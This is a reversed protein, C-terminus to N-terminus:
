HAVPISNAAVPQATPVIQDMPLELSFVSNNGEDAHVWFGHFGERLEPHAALLGLMVDVVQKRAAPPDRLQAAQTADPTYHVELDFAGLAVTVDVSTLQFTTGNANLPVPNNSPLDVHVQGQEKQLKEMNPSFLFDVPDLLYAATRYYFWANWNQNRQAYKRANVWYWLGDHGGEIMPKTFFGALMWRHDPTQSLILSIQQPQPVGTAHVIAVAYMGPPLDTFNFVILPTGCFFDTRPSGAVESTADLEYVSDITITAQQVLPKLTDVSSSIGSFDSAVAPITNARLTQVDGTQVEKALNRATGALADRELATLQSQTKCSAAYTRCPM